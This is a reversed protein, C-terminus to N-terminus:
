SALIVPRFGFRGQLLHDSPEGGQIPMVFANFIGSENSSFLISKEDFSFSSGGISVTKMFQEISYKRIERCEGLTTNLVIAVLSIACFVLNKIKMM